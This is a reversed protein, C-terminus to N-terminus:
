VVFDWESAGPSAAGTAGGKQLAILAREYVPSQEVFWDIARPWNAEDRMDTRVGGSLPFSTGLKLDPRGLAQALFARHPFLFERILPTRVRRAGRVFIGASGNAIYHAIVLPMPGVALWRSHETAYDTRSALAPAADALAAWFARRHRYLDSVM